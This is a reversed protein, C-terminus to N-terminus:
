EEATKVSTKEAAEIDAAVISDVEQMLKRLDALTNM